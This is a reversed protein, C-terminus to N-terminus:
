IPHLCVRIVQFNSYVDLSLHTPMILIKIIVYFVFYNWPQLGRHGDSPGGGSDDQLTEDTDAWLHLQAYSM